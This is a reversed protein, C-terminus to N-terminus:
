HIETQLTQPHEVASYPPPPPPWSVFDTSEQEMDDPDSNFVKPLLIFIETSLNSSVQYENLFSPNKLYPTSVILLEVEEDVVTEHYHWKSKSWPFGILYCQSKLVDNCSIFIVM